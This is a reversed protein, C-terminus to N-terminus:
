LSKVGSCLPAPVLMYLFHHWYGCLLCRWSCPPLKPQPELEMFLDGPNPPLISESVACLSFQSSEVNGGRNYPSKDHSVSLSSIYTHSTLYRGSQFGVMHCWQPSQLSRSLHSRVLHWTSAESKKSREAFSQSVPCRFCVVKTDALGRPNKFLKSPLLLGRGVTSKRSILM